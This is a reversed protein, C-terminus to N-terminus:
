YRANEENYMDIVKYHLHVFNRAWLAPYSILGAGCLSYWTSANFYVTCKWGIFLGLGIVALWVCAPLLMLKIKTGYYSDQM